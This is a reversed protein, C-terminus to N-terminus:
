VVPSVRSAPFRHRCALVAVVAAVAGCCVSCVLAYGIAEPRRFVKETLLAVTLPGLSLALLNVLLVQVAMVQARIVPPSIQQLATGGLVTPVGLICYAGAVSLVAWGSSVGLVPIMTLVIMLAAVVVAVRLSADRYGKRELRDTVTGTIAAGAVGGIVAAFGAIPAVESYTLGQTRVLMTLSWSSIAFVCYSLALMAGSVGAFVQWHRSVYCVTARFNKASRAAAARREPEAVSLLLCVALASLSGCMVFGARWSEGVPWLADGRAGPPIQLLWGGGIMAIGTGIPGGCGFLGIATSLRERPAVDAIMSLAAPYLFAEGLGVAMRAAFLELFGHAFACALTAVSWIVAGVLVIFRRHGRDAVRAAPIGLAAAFVAVAFGQTLSYQTDSLALAAKIPGVLVNLIQFTAVASAHCIALVVVAWIWTLARPARSSAPSVIEVTDM